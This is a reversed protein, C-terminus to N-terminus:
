GGHPGQVRRTLQKGVEIVVEDGAASRMRIRSGTPLAQVMRAGAHHQSVAADVDRRTRMWVMLCRAAYAVVCMGATVLSADM